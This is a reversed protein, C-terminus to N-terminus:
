TAQPIRWGLVVENSLLSKYPRVSITDIDLYVGGNEFLVDLRLKDAKHATQRIPKKGFHTPLDVKQLKLSPIQKLKEWWPGKPEYHYYFYIADPKNVIYASLVSLYFSFWFDETTEQLGFIFHLINPIQRLGQYNSVVGQPVPTHELYTDPVDVKNPADLLPPM